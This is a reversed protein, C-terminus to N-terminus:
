VKSWMEERPDEPHLQALERLIERSREDQARPATVSVEVILDGHKDKRQNFIGKDRLRFRQQNQTGQPIKLLARGDLTPVEIKTGLAAEWVTVPVIIHLDDGERVFFAHDEVNVTIFLDGPPAGMTGANGKHAVRLRDGSKVGAPLRVEVAESATTRGEGQCVPCVNRLRGSGDCKPCSLNFRMAGAQQTITGGGNCQPCVINNTGASGTGRCNGCAEHRQITLRAQTGKVARWFDVKLAYELDSGRQPERRQQQARGFFQGFIDGFRSGGGAAEEQRPASFVDSFDFGGFDMHPQGQGPRGGAAGAMNDSYFGYQDYIARKKADSLVDYAEQLQKFREEAVKDGPNVDPHHKRVLRKYAKRVDDESAGRRLGLTEYYDQKPPM